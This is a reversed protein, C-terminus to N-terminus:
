RQAPSSIWPPEEEEVYYRRGGPIMAAQELYFLSLNELDPPSFLVYFPQPDLEEDRYLSIFDRYRCVYDYYRCAFVQQAVLEDFIDESRFAVALELHERGAALLARYAELAEDVWDRRWFRPYSPLLVENPRAFELVRDWLEAPLTM